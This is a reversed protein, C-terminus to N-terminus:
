NVKRQGKIKSELTPSFYSLSIHIGNLENLKKEYTKIVSSKGSAYPGTIAINLLDNEQFVFDLAQSYGQMEDDSLCTPTLKEFIIPEKSETVPQEQSPQALSEAENQRHEM